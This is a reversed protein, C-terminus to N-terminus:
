AVHFNCILLINQDDFKMNLRMAEDPLTWADRCEAVNSHPIRKLSLQLPWKLKPRDSRGRRTKQNQEEATM